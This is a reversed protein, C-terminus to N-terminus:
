VSVFPNSFSLYGLHSFISECYLKGSSGDTGTNRFRYKKYSTRNFGLGMASTSVALAPMPVIFIFAPQPAVMVVAAAILSM